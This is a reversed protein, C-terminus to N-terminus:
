SLEELWGAVERIVSPAAELLRARWRVIEQLDRRDLVM